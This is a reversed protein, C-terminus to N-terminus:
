LIMRKKIKILWNIIYPFLLTFFLLNATLQTIYFIIGRAYYVAFRGWFNDFLGTLLGVDVMSTLVSFLATLLLAALAPFIRMATRNEPRIMRALLIFVACVLPWYIYYSVIWTGFGYILGEVTVFAFVSILCVAGFVFAGVACLLTVIEVNPLVALAEKGGIIMAAYVGAFAIRKVPSAAKSHKKCEKGDQQAATNANKEHKDCVGDTGASDSAGDTGITDCIDDSGHKDCVGDTGASDSAGDTGASDSAGDAGITDCVGDPKEARESM